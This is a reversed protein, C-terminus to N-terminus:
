DAVPRAAQLVGKAASLWREVMEYGEHATYHLNLNHGTEPVFGYEFNAPSIDAYRPTAEIADRETTADYSSRDYQGILLYTPVTTGNRIVDGATPTASLEGRTVTGKMEEDVAVIAPDFHGAHYMTAERIGPRKTLYDEDILGRLHPVADMAPIFLHDWFTDLDVERAPGPRYGTLVLADIEAQNAAALGAVVSGLSHGILVVRAFGAVGPLGRRAMAALRRLVDAQAESTNERGPPHSSLGSGIRDISLTAIGRAAAWRVYSYLGPDVPWDWYRHDYNAGHVLIQLEDRRREDPVTLWAASHWTPSSAGAPAPTELCLERRDIM